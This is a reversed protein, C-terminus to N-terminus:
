LKESPEHSSAIPPADAVYYPVIPSSVSSSSPLLNVTVLHSDPTSPKSNTYSSPLLGVNVRSSHMTTPSIDIIIVSVSGDEVPPSSPSPSSVSVAEEREAAVAAM